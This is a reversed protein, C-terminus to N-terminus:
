LPLPLHRLDASSFEKGDSSFSPAGDEFDDAFTIRQDIRDYNM